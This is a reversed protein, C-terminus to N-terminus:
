PPEESIEFMPSAEITMFSAPPPPQFCSTGYYYPWEQYLEANPGQMSLSSLFVGIMTEDAQGEIWEFQGRDEWQKSWLELDLAPEVSFRMMLTLLDGPLVPIEARFMFKEQRCEREEVPEGQFSFASGKIAGTESVQGHSAIPHEIVELGEGGVVFDGRLLSSEAPGENLLNIFLAWESESEFTKDAWVELHFNARTAEVRKQQEQQSFRFLIVSVSVAALLTLGSFIASWGQWGPRGLWGLVWRFVRM